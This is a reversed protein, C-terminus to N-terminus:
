LLVFLFSAVADRSQQLDSCYHIYWVTALCLYAAEWTIVSRWNRLVSCYIKTRLSNMVVNEHLDVVDFKLNTNMLVHSCHEYIPSGDSPEEHPHFGRAQCNRIVSVGSPESLHFIGHNRLIGRKGRCAHRAPLGGICAKRLTTPLSGPAVGVVLYTLSGEAGLIGDEANTDLRCVPMCAKKLTTPLSGPVVGVALRTPGICAKRLTTPVIKLVQVRSQVAATDEFSSM